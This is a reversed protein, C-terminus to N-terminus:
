HDQIKEKEKTVKTIIKDFLLDLAKFLDRDSVKIHGMSGWRFHITSEATFEGNHEKDLNLHLDAVHDKVHELRKLKKDIYEKTGDGPNYGHTGKVEITMADEEQQDYFYNDNTPHRCIL